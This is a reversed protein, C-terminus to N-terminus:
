GVQEFSTPVGAGLLDISGYIEYIMTDIVAQPDVGEFTVRVYQWQGEAVPVYSYGFLTNSRMYISVDMHGASNSLRWGTIYTGQALEAISRTDTELDGTEEHAGAAAISIEIEWERTGDSYRAATSGGNTSILPGTPSFTDPLHVTVQDFSLDMPALLTEPTKGDAYCLGEILMSYRSYVVDSTEVVYPSTMVFRLMVDGAPVELQYITMNPGTLSSTCMRVNNLNSFVRSSTTTTGEVVLGRAILDAELAQLDLLSRAELDEDSMGFADAQQAGVAYLTSQGDDLWWTLSGDDAQSASTDYPLDFVIDGIGYSGDAGVVWTLSDPQDTVRLTSLAAQTMDFVDNSSSDLGSMTVISYDYDGPGTPVLAVVVLQGLGEM